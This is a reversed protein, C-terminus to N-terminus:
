TMNLKHELYDIEGEVRTLEFDCFSHHGRFGMELTPKNSRSQIMLSIKDEHLRSLRERNYDEDKEKQSRHIQVEPIKKQYEFVIKTLAIPFPCSGQIATLRTESDEDVQISISAITQPVVPPNNESSVLDWFFKFVPTTVRGLFSLIRRNCSNNSSANIM